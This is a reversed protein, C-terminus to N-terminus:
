LTESKDGMLKSIADHSPTGKRVRLFWFCNEGSLNAIINGKQLLHIKGYDGGDIRIDDSDIEIKMASGYTRPAGQALLAGINRQSGM